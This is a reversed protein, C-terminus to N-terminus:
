PLPCSMPQADSRWPWTWTGGNLAVAQSDGLITLTVTGIWGTTPAPLSATATAGPEPALDFVVKDFAALGGASQTQSFTGAPTHCTVTVTADMNGTMGASVRMGKESLSGSLNLTGTGSGNGECHVPGAQVTAKVQMPAPGSGQFSDDDNYSLKIIAEPSSDWQYAIIGGGNSQNLTAHIKVKVKSACKKELRTKQSQLYALEASYADIEEQAIQQLTQYDRWSHIVDLRHASKWKKCADAHIKEHTEFIKRACSPADVNFQIDCAADTHAIAGHSHVFPNAVGYANLADLVQRDMRALGSKSYPATAWPEKSIEEYTKIATEAEGILHLIAPLFNCDCPEPSQAKAALPAMLLILLVWGWHSAVFRDSAAGVVKISCSRFQFPM